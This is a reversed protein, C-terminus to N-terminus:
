NLYKQFKTKDLGYESIINGLFSIGLLSLSAEVWNSSSDHLRQVKALFHIDMEKLWEPALAWLSHNRAIKLIPGGGLDWKEAVTSPLHRGIACGQTTLKRSNSALYFCVGSDKICRRELPSVTYYELMDLLFEENTM